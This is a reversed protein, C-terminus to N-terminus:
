SVAKRAAAIPQVPKRVMWSPGFPLPEPKETKVAFFEDIAKRAGPWEVTHEYEDFLIIGGPVVRDYITSLCSRYSMYLDCDMFVFSFQQNDPLKPITTDFVGKHFHARIKPALKKALGAIHEYHYEKYHGVVSVGKRHEPLNELDQEHIYPFGEFTDFAFYQRKDATKDLYTLTYVMSYGSGVGCEAIDGALHATQELCYLIRFLRIDSSSYPRLTYGMLYETVKTLSSTKRLFIQLRKGSKSHRVWNKLSRM